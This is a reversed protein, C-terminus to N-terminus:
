SLPDFDPDTDPAPDPTKALEQATFAALTRLVKKTEAKAARAKREEEAARAREQAEEQAAKEIEAAFTGSHETFLDFQPYFKFDVDWKARGYRNKLCVLQIKRPNEDNAQKIRERKETMLGNKDFLKEKICSLQLGWVVDATYEIGGSEKFSEYDVPTLYNARNVSSIVLVPVKLEGSMIKLTSIIYDTEDRRTAKKQATNLIQLYDLIVVPGTGREKIYRAVYGCLEEVTYRFGGSAVYGSQRPTSGPCVINLHDGVAQTYDRIADRLPRSEVGRRIKLSTLANCHDAQATMRALSKSAMELRSQELSFFLVDRGSAAIQDAMQHILTTKGLGSIAGIVYLGPFLGGSSMEDLYDFGTRIAGVSSFTKIEAPMENLIYSSIGDGLKPPQQDQAAESPQAAQTQPAEQAEHAGGGIVDNWDLARDTADDAFEVRAPYLIDHEFMSMAAPLTLDHRRQLYDIITGANTGTHNDSWCHWLHGTVQFCDNHGCIPCPNFYLKSGRRVEQANETSSIYAALDFVEIEDRLGGGPSGQARQQGAQARPRDTTAQTAKAPKEAAPAAPPAPLARLADVPTAQRSAYFVCGARGGYFLRASDFVGTDACGPRAANFIGAFRATLDAAEVDETLPQDLVLVVRFRQWEGTSSFSFYMFCPNIGHRKMVARAEDPLMPPDLQVYEVKNDAGKVPKGDAGLKEVKNDIDACIVQQGQWTDGTTGTMAAPTFTYGRQIADMLQDVTLDRISGATCLRNRIAGVYAGPKESYGRRDLNLRITGEFAM